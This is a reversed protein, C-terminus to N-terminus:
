PLLKVLAVIAVTQIILMAYLRRTLCREMEDLRGVLSVGVESIHDSTALHNYSCKQM